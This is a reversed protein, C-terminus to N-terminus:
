INIDPIEQLDSVCYTAMDKVLASSPSYLYLISKIGANAACELDIKRDGVYYCRERDLGYKEVLYDVGDPAPKRPLGSDATIVERFLDLIGLRELVAPASAGKHTYVFHIAGRDRLQRLVAEAHPNLRIQDDQSTQLFCCRRFLEAEPCDYGVVAKHLYATVSTATVEQFVTERDVTIGYEELGQTVASVIFAYSDFLTGDLDWIFAPATM